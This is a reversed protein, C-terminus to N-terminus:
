HYRKIRQNGSIGTRKGTSHTIHLVAAACRGLNNTFSITLDKGADTYLPSPDLFRDAGTYFRVDVPTSCFKTDSGAPLHCDRVSYITSGPTSLASAPVTFSHRRALARFGAVAVGSGPTHM